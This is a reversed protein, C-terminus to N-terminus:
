YLHIPLTIIFKRKIKHIPWTNYLIKKRRSISNHPGWCKWNFKKALLNSLAPTKYFRATQHLHWSGFSDPRSCSSQHTDTPGVVQWVIHYHAKLSQPTQRSGDITNTKSGSILQAGAPLSQNMINKSQAPDTKGMSYGQGFFFLTIHSEENVEQTLITINIRLNM